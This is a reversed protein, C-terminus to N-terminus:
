CENFLVAAFKFEMLAGPFKVGLQEVRETAQNLVIAIEMTTTVAAPRCRGCCRIRHQNRWVGFFFAYGCCLKTRSIKGAGQIVFSYADFVDPQLMNVNSMSFCCYMWIMFVHYFFVRTCVFVDSGSANAAPHKRVRSFLKSEQLTLAMPQLPAKVWIAAVQGM